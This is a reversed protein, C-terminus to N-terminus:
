ALGDTDLKRADPLDWHQLTYSFGLRQVGVLNHDTIGYANALEVVPTPTDWMLSHSAYFVRRGALISNNESSAKEIQSTCAGNVLIAVIVILLLTKKM